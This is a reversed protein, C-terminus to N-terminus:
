RTWLAMGAMVCGFGFVLVAALTISQTGRRPALLLGDTPRDWLGESIIWRGAAVTGVIGIVILATGLSWNVVTELLHIVALLM